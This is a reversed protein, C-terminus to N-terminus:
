RHRLKDQNEFSGGGVKRESTKQTHGKTLDTADTMQSHNEVSYLVKQKKINLLFVFHGPECNLELSNCRSNYTM